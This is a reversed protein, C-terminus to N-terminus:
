RGAFRVSRSGSSRICSKNEIGYIEQLLYCLGDIFIKQKFPKLSFSGDQNREVVAILAHSQRPEDGELSVCHIVVPFPVRSDFHGNEDFARYMLDDEDHLTPEFIHTPQNFQQNSGRKYYFTESNFSVDRSTYTLGTSSMEEQCLYYVTIAVKVDSDFTFEINYKYDKKVCEPAPPSLTPLSTSSVSTKTKDLQSNSSTNSPHRSVSVEPKDKLPEIISTSDTAIKIFRLSEKRINVLARLTRTPEHPLPATYPFPTPKAGLFNLDLNEGFLYMEPQCTDFREGGMIFHSSFYNGNKPPYLYAQNPIGHDHDEIRAERSGLIYNGM